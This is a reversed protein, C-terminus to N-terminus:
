AAPIVDPEGQFFPEESPSASEEEQIFPEVTAETADEWSIEPVPTEAEPPTPIEYAQLLNENWLALQAQLDPSASLDYAFTSLGASDYSISMPLYLLVSAAGSVDISEGVRYAQQPMSPPDASTMESVQPICYVSAYHLEVNAQQAFSLSVTLDEGLLAVTAEGIIYANSACLPIHIQGQARLKELDLMTGMFWNSTLGPSYDAMRVGYTCAGNHSLRPVLHMFPIAYVWDEVYLTVLYPVTRNEVFPLYIDESQFTMSQYGYNKDFILTDTDMQTITLRVRAALEDSDSIYKQVRIGPAQASLHSAVYDNSRLSNMDLLDVNITFCDEAQAPVDLPFWALCLSLALLILFFKRQM